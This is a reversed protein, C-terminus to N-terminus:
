ATPIKMPWPPGHGGKAGIFSRWQDGRLLGGAYMSVYSALFDSPFVFPSSTTASVSVVLVLVSVILVNILNAMAPNTVVLEPADEAAKANRKRSTAM